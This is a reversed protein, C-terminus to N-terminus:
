CFILPISQINPISPKAKFFIGKSLLSNKLGEGIHPSIWYNVSHEKLLSPLIVSPKNNGSALPNKLYSINQVAQNELHVLVIHSGSNSLTSFDEKDSSSFAVIFTDKQDLLKIEHGCILATTLKKRASKLIRSFTPRSVSMEKAADEQYLSQFDMLFLAEIEDSNLSMSGEPEKAAPVFLTFEPKFSCSRDIKSRGM